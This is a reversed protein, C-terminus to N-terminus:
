AALNTAVHRGGHMYHQVFEERLANRQAVIRSWSVAEVAARAQGSPLESEWDGEGGVLGVVELVDAWAGEALKRQEARGQEIQRQARETARRAEEDPPRSRSDPEAVPRYQHGAQAEDVYRRLKRNFLTAPTAWNQWGDPKAAKVAALRLELAAKVLRWGWGAERWRRAQCRADQSDARFRAPPQRQQNVWTVALEALSREDPSEDQEFDFVPNSKDASASEGKPSLPPIHGPITHFLAFETGNSNGASPSNDTCTRHVTSDTETCPRDSDTSVRVAEVDTACLDALYQAARAEREAHWVAADKRSMGKRAPIWDRVALYNGHGLPVFEGSADLEGLELHGVELLEDVARKFLRLDSRTVKGASSQRLAVAPERGRLALWGGRPEVLKGIYAAYAKTTISLSRFPEAEDRYLFHREAHKFDISLM